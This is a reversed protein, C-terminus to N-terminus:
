PVEYIELLVDGATQDGSSVQATYSGPTFPLMVVVDLTNAPIPFAGVKALSAALDDAYNLGGVVAPYVYGNEYIRGASDFLRLVPQRLPNAVGFAALSPGVARIIIKKTQGPGAVVVFGATFVPGSGAALVGRNSVNILRDTPGVGLILSQSPISSVNPENNVLVYTGADATTVRPIILPNSTAGALAQNNKLWQVPRGGFSPGTIRLTEGSPVTVRSPPVARIGNAVDLVLSTEGSALPPTVTGTAPIVAVAVFPGAPNISTTSITTAPVATAASVTNQADLAPVFLAALAGALSALRLTKM